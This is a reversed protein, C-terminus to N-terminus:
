CYRIQGGAASCAPGAQSAHRHVRALAVVAGTVPNRVARVQQVALVLGVDHVLVVIVLPEMHRGGVDVEAHFLRLVPMRPM